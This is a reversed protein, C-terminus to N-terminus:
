AHEEGEKPFPLSPIDQSGHILSKLLSSQKETTDEHYRELLKDKLNLLRRNATQTLSAFTACRIKAFPVDNETLTKDSIGSDIRHGIVFVDYWCNTKIFGSGRMDAVYEEGQNMEKRTISFKGKKLELLLVKRTDTLGSEQFEEIGVVSLTTEPLVVLDPRKRWNPYQKITSDVKFLKNVTNKLTQNFCYESSEYEPGFLWRSKSVLPHLTHLEDTDDKASLVEITRIISIRRDVEELVVLADQISWESLLRDLAEYDDMSFTALKELLSKGTRTNQLSIFSTLVKSLADAEIMPDNQVINSVFNEVEFQQNDPLEKISEINNQYADKKTEEIRELSFSRYKKLVFENLVRFLSFRKAGKKFQSWDSELADEQMFDCEVLFSFRKGFNTRGDIPTYPDIIWSPEGVLRNNVRFTFGQLYNTRANKQSDITTVCIQGFDDVEIIEPESVGPHSELSLKEDNVFVSFLPDHFFRAALLEKSHPIDALHRDVSCSLTTGHYSAKSENISVIEWPNSGNSLRIQVCNKRGNKTTEVFYTDSFCFMAHRGIGNRGFAKRNGQLDPPFEVTVGQHKSRNYGLCMWRKEFEPRTMGHGNDTISFGEGLELPLKINVETAGADWANAVLETLAFDPDHVINGSIKELFGEEFLTGQIPEDLM